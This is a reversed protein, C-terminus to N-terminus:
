KEEEFAWESQFQYAEYPKENVVEMLYSTQKSLGRHPAYNNRFLLEALMTQIVHIRDLAKAKDFQTVNTEM